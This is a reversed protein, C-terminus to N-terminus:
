YKNTQVGGAEFMLDHCSFELYSVKTMLSGVKTESTTWVMYLHPFRLNNVHLANIMSPGPMLLTSCVHKKLQLIVSKFLGAATPPM